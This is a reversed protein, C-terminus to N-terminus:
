HPQYGFGRLRVGAILEEVECGHTDCGEWLRMEFPQEGALVDRDTVYAFTVCGCDFEQPSVQPMDHRSVVLCDTLDDQSPYPLFRKM